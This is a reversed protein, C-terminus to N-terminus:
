ERRWKSEREGFSFLVFNCDEDTARQKEQKNPKPEHVPGEQSAPPDHKKQWASNHWNTATSQPNMSRKIKNERKQCIQFCAECGYDACFSRVMSNGETQNWSRLLNWDRSEAMLSWRCVGAACELPLGGHCIKVASMLPLTRHCLKVAFKSLLCWCGFPLFLFHQPRVTQYDKRVQHLENKITFQLHKNSQQKSLGGFPLFLGHQQKREIQNLSRLLDREENNTAPAQKITSISM